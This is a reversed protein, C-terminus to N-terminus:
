APPDGVAAVPEGVLEMELRMHCLWEQSHAKREFPWDRNGVDDPVLFALYCRGGCAGTGFCFDIGDEELDMWLFAGCDGGSDCVALESIGSKYYAIARVVDVGDVVGCVREEVGAGSFEADFWSVAVRGALGDFIFNGLFGADARAM